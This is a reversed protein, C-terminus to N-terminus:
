QQVGNIYVNGNLHIGEDDITIDSGSNDNEIIINDNRVRIHNRSDMSELQIGHSDILFTYNYEGNPSVLNFRIAQNYNDDYGSVTVNFSAPWGGYDETPSGVQIDVKTTTGTVSVGELAPWAGGSHDDVYKKTASDDNDIPDAHKLRQANLNNITKVSVPSNSLVSVGNTGAIQVEDGANFTIGYDPTSLSIPGASAEAIVGGSGYLEVNNGDSRVIIGDPADLDVGTSARVTIQGGETLEISSVGSSPRVFTTNDTNAEFVPTGTEDNVIKVEGSGPNTISIGPGELPFGAAGGGGGYNADAYGKTVLDDNETPDAAKIRQYLGQSDDTAMVRVPEFRSRFWLGDGGGYPDTKWYIGDGEISSFQLAYYIRSADSEKRYLIDDYKIQGSAPNTISVNNGNIPFSSSGGGGAVSIVGNTVDLGDGIKVVGYQSTSARLQASNQLHVAGIAYKGSNPLTTDPITIFRDFEFAMNGNLGPTLTIHGYGYPSNMGISTNVAGTTLSLAEGDSNSSRYQLAGGLSPIKLYGNTSNLKFLVSGGDNSFTYNGITLPLVSGGAASLTGSAITLGDGIALTGPVRDAGFSLLSNSQPAVLRYVWDDGAANRQKVEVSNAPPVQATMSCASLLLATLPIIISTKFKMDKMHNSTQIKYITIQTNPNIFAPAM